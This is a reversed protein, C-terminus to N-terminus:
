QTSGKLFRNVDEVTERGFVLHGNGPLIIQTLPRSGAKDRCFGELPTGDFWPDNMRNVAMVPVDKPTHLGDYRLFQSSTCTWALIVHAKFGKGSYLATAIGGESHGMLYVKDYSGWMSKQVKELAYDIEQERYYAWQKFAGTGRKTEVDCNSIRGERAMSDPQIVVYGRHAMAQAWRTDHPAYIGSCGHMYVIVPYVTTLSELDKTTHRESSGPYYVHAAEWSKEVDSFFAFANTSVLLLALILKNM